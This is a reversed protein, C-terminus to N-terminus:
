RITSAMRELGRHAARRGGRSGCRIHRRQIPRRPLPQASSSIGLLRLLRAAASSSISERSLPSSPSDAHAQLFELCSTQRDGTQLRGPPSLVVPTGQDAQRAGWMRGPRDLYDWDEFQAERAEDFGGVALWDDRHFIASVCFPNFYRLLGPHFGASRHLRHEEGVVQVWSYALRVGSNGELLVLCKELYTSALWDDADLCCIYRGRARAVGANRAASPGRNPQRLITMGPEQLAELLGLTSPDDSGDDVLIIEFDQFSQRALSDLARRLYRGHNFCPIVVSLLPKQPDWQTAHGSDQRLASASGIDLVLHVLHRGKEGLWSRFAPPLSFILRQLFHASRM